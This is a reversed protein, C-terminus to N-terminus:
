GLSGPPPPLQGQAPGKASPAGGGPRGVFFYIIAGVFGALLIVLIWILKNGARYM